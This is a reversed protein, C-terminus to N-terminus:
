NDKMIENVELGLKLVGLELATDRGLLSRQGEKIVYFVGYLKKEGIEVLAKFKGIVKLNEDNAYGKLIRRPNKEEESVKVGKKKLRSWEEDGIINADSGSDILM